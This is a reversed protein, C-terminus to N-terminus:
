HGPGAENEWPEGWAPEPFGYEYIEAVAQDAALPRVSTVRERVLHEFARLVDHETLMGVVRGDEVVPLAGIKQEHMLRAAERIGTAPRVTIVGWTMVEGVTRARLAEGLEGLREQVSPDFVMQRLDRDTVIGVLRGAADVVPLHRIRRTRMLEVAARVPAEARITVAPTTMWQTVPLAELWTPAGPAAPTKREAM